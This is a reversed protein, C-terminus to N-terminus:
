ISCRHTMIKTGPGNQLSMPQSYNVNSPSPTSLFDYTPFHFPAQTIPYEYSPPPAHSSSSSYHSMSQSFQQDHIPYSGTRSNIVLQGATTEMYPYDRISSESLQNNMTRIGEQIIGANHPDLFAAPTGSFYPSQGSRPPGSTVVTPHQSLSNSGGRGTPPTSQSGM